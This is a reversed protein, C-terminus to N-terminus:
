PRQEGDCGIIVYPRGGGVKLTGCMDVDVAANSNEDAVCMPAVCEGEHREFLIPPDKYNRAAITPAVGLRSVEANAQGSAMVTPQAVASHIGGQGEHTLTNVTGDSYTPM